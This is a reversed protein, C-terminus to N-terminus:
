RGLFDKRAEDLPDGKVIGLIAEANELRLRASMTIQDGDLWAAVIEAPSHIVADPSHILSRM